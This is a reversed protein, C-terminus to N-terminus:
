RSIVAREPNVPQIAGYTPIYATGYLGVVPVQLSGSIWM